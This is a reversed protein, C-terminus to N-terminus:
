PYLLWYYGRNSLWERKPNRDPYYCLHALASIHWQKAGWSSPPYLSTFISVHSPLTIPVPTFARTFDIGEEALRDIYPTDINSYGYCGLHDARLTDITILILNPQTQVPTSNRSCGSFLFWSIVILLLLLSFSPLPLILNQIKFWNKLQCLRLDIQQKLKDPM